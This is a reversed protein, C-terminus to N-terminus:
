DIVPSIVPRERRPCGDGAECGFYCAGAPGVVTLLELDLLDAITSILGLTFYVFFCGAPPRSAGFIDDSILHRKTLDGGETLVAPLGGGRVGPFLHDHMLSRPSRM